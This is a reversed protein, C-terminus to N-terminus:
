LSALFWDVLARVAPESRKTEVRTREIFEEGDIGAAGLDRGGDARVWSAVTDVDVEPHFQVAFARGLRFAQPGVTSRALLEAGPALSFTDAHWQLWPGPEIAADLSEVELWGLELHEARRVTGGLAHTLIQAGYCIGFIPVDRRHASLLLASEAEVAQAMSVDHVHWESGLVLVLEARDLGPWTTTDERGLREFGYGREMLEDGVYGATALGNNAIMLARPV